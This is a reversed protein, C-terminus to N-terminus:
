EAINKDANDKTCFIYFCYILLMIFFIFRIGVNCRYPLDDEINNINIDVGNNTGDWSWTNDRTHDVEIYPADPFPGCDALPRELGITNGANLQFYANGIAGSGDDVCYNHDTAYFDTRGAYTNTTYIGRGYFINRWISANKASSDFGISHIGTSTSTLNFTHGNTLEPSKGHM